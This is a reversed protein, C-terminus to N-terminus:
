QIIYEVRGVILKPDHPRSIKKKIGQDCSLTKLYGTIPGDYPEKYHYRKPSEEKFYSLVSDGYKEYKLLDEDREKENGWFGLCVRGKLRNRNPPAQTKLIIIDGRRLDKKPENIPKVIVKQGNNLGFLSLSNGVLYYIDVSDNLRIIKNDKIFNNLMLCKKEKFTSEDIPDNVNGAIVPRVTVYNNKQM